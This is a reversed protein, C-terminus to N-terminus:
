SLKFELWIVVVVAIVYRFVGSFTAKQFRDWLYVTLICFIALFCCRFSHRIFLFGWWSLRRFWRVILFSHSGYHDVLGWNIYVTITWFWSMLIDYLICTREFRDGRHLIMWADLVCHLICHSFDEERSDSVGNVETTVCTFLCSLCQFHETFFWSSISTDFFVVCVESKLM